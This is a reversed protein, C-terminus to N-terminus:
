PEDNAVTEHRTRPRLLKALPSRYPRPAQAAEHLPSLPRGILNVDRPAFDVEENEACACSQELVGAETCFQELAPILAVYASFSTSSLDREFSTADLRSFSLDHLRVHYPLFNAEENEVYGDVLVLASAQVYACIHESTPMTQFHAGFLLYYATLSPLTM